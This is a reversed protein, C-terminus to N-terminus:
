LGMQRLTTNMSTAYHGHGDVKPHFSQQSPKAGEGSSPIHGRGRHPEVARRHRAGDGPGWLGGQGRLTRQPDSFWVYTKGAAANARAVAEKMHVLFLDGMENLWPAEGTGVGPVCGGSGEFLKPYGM